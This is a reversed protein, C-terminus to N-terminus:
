ATLRRVSARLVPLLEEAFWPHQRLWGNNRWSPHPLPLYRPLYARWGAVTDSLTPRAGAGLHWRQAYSGVLLTLEVEPLLALVRTRWLAACRPPPPADGGRPLRGPYCFAMPLIAVRGPDYFTERDLGLWDRLRDGSADDFTLGSAHARTGPAQSCILLRASAGARLLPRPGLPLEPGCADCGRIETMLDDLPSTSVGGHYFSSDGRSTSQLAQCNASKAPM